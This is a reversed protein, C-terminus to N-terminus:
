FKYGVTFLVNHRNLDAKQGRLLYTTDDNQTAELYPDHGGDFAHVDREQKQYQYAVDAYFHKGRVGLGATIRHTDGLNVYDTNTSYAYSPSNTFQNLYAGDKFPSSVYNYGMRAYVGKTVMAEAGIRFSHVAQMNRKIEDSMVVDKESSFSEGYYSDSDPYRIQSSTTTSVEYEADVALFNGVTTAMSLNIKWPTHIRYDFDGVEVDQETNDFVNGDQDTFDYPSRMKLYSNQTLSMFMPTSVSFGIRFPSEEIPRLIVGFKLDFGSGTLSEANAMEYTDTNGEGDRLLENYYTQSHFDAHYIGLTFGAYIQHDFNFSANLDFQHIGGWQARRYNYREANSADYDIIKGEENYVPAIMQTDYGVVTLPTTLYSDEKNPSLDLWPAGIGGLRALDRMQWSQSLGGETAIDTLNITNMLNRRKQYNFGFNVYKLSGSNMKCAYVFGAQDFSARAKNIDGFDIGNPQIVAGGSIAVDNRRYLGIAAPNTGMTSLDAGLANMAGGMGVYRATGNLDSGAFTEVKYIDQANMSGCLVLSALALTYKKKM